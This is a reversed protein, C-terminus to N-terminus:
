RMSHHLGLFPDDAVIFHFFLFALVLVLFRRNLTNVIREPTNASAVKLSYGDDVLHYKQIM